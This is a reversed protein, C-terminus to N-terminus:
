AWEHTFQTFSQSLKKRSKQPIHFAVRVGGAVGHYSVFQFAADNIMQSDISFWVVGLSITIHWFAHVNNTKDMVQKGTVSPTKDM